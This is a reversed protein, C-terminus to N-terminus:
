EGPAAPSRGLDVGCPDATGYVGWHQQIDRHPYIRIWGDELKRWPRMGFLLNRQTESWRERKVYTGTMDRKTQEEKKGQNVEWGRSIWYRKSSGFQAPAKTIYKTVYRVAHKTNTIAEIWCIPSGILERMQEAIWDQPVFPCRLLIHLHPEGRQTKELFAMYHLRDCGRAPTDATAARTRREAAAERHTSTLQWRREPALAFQRLIRKVLRKWADHLLARRHTPSDGIRTSVTLTLLKNPEGSAAQAILRLRRKPACYDCSWANCPLPKVDDFGEGRKVLQVQSCLM